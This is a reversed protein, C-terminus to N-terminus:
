RLEGTIAVQGDAIAFVTVRIGTALSGLPTTLTETLL